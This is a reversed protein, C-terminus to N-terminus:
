NESLLRRGLTRARQGRTRPLLAMVLRRAEDVPLAARVPQQSERVEIVGQAFFTDLQTPLKWFPTRPRPPAIPVRERRYDDTETEVNERRTCIECEESCVSLRIGDWM